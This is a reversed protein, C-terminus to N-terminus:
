RARSNKFPSEAFAFYIFDSGNQNTDNWTSRIKFGNSLIDFPTVSTNNEEDLYEAQTNIDEHLAVAYNALAESIM